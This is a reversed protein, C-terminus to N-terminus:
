TLRSFESKLMTFNYSPATNIGCKEKVHLWLLFQRVVSGIVFCWVIAMGGEFKFASITAMIITIFSTLLMIRMLEKNMGHMVLMCGCPGSLVNAIHMIVLVRLVEKASEFSPGFM